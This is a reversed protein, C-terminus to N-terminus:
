KVYYKLSTRGDLRHHRAAKRRAMPRPSVHATSQRKAPMLEM